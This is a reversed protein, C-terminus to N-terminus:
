LMRRGAAAPKAAAPKAAPAAAKAAAPAAAKAAVPAEKTAAKTMATMATMAPKAVPIMVENRRNFLTMPSDYGAAFWSTADFPLNAAKLAAMLEQAKAANSAATPFGGYSIVYM